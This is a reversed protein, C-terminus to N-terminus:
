ARTALAVIPSLTDGNKPTLASTWWPRGDTRRFFRFAREGSVFRVHISEAYQPSQYMGELYESPVVLILDGVTGLTKAFESFFIPRGDLTGQGDAGTQFYPVPAGGTGVVQVLSKLQVRTNHNALWVARGYRWCRAAMKDINTKVITAAVQSTEKAVEILAPSNLFGMREGSGAGNIRENMAFAAYEDKFGAAIVAVFSEPSDSLVSETAYALGFEENATLTVQEFKMRSSTGDVAEPRRSVTLGGSVSSSHNKDVRANFKVTPASMPINTLLAALPDGEAEVQLIGPAIGSPVLYGGYPDSYTGQEDSGVAAKPDLAKLRADIRGRGAAMVAGFFENHNRFGRKPDKAWKEAQDETVETQIGAGTATEKAKRDNAQEAALLEEATELEQARLNELTRAAHIRSDFASSASAAAAIDATLKDSDAQPADKPLGKMQRELLGAYGAKATQQEVLLASLSARAQDRAVKADIAKQKLENLKSAM